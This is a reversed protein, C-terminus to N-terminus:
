PDRRSEIHVNSKTKSRWARGTLDVLLLPHPLRVPKTGQLFHVSSSPHLPTRDPSVTLPMPPNSLQRLAHHVIVDSRALWRHQARCAKELKKGSLASLPRDALTLIAFSTPCSGQVRYAIDCQWLRPPRHPSFIPALQASFSSTPAAM